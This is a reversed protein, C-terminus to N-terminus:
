SVLPNEQMYGITKLRYVSGYTSVNMDFAEDRSHPVDYWRSTVLPMNRRATFSGGSSEPPSDVIIM